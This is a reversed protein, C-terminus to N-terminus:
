APRRRLLLRRTVKGVLWFLIGLLIVAACLLGLLQRKLQSAVQRAVGLQDFATWEERIKGDSIRWITIGRLEIRAGTAPLWGSRATNSGRFVWLVSVLDGEAVMPGYAIKLDPCARKEFHVAAQDEALGADRHLGHNVFDTAYIEDAVQFKGQNFIEDFVRRAIAKNQEQQSITTASSSAPVTVAGAWAPAIIFLVFTLARKM